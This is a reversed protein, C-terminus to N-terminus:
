VLITTVIVTEPPKKSKRLLPVISHTHDKPHPVPVDMTITRSRYTTYACVPYTALDTHRSLHVYKIVRQKGCKKPCVVAPQVQDGAAIAEPESTKCFGWSGHRM